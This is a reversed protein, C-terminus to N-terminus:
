CQVHNRQRRTFRTYTRWQTLIFIVLGGGWGLIKLQKDKKSEFFHREVVSTVKGMCSKRKTDDRTAAIYHQVKCM